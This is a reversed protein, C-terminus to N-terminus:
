VGENEIVYRVMHDDIIKKRQQYGYMLSKECIRNIIRLTGSSSRFIEDVAKETFLEHECGAYRLHSRIYEETDSRELRPLICNMDVRQRIATYCQLRLKDLLESQAVLILAMPSISDYNFNLLFRFEELTEKELLHAEDLVCVVQQKRVGRIIEIEKHLQRKADGRYFKSEIGLQDLLGKYFWRPTLKSDSLYLLTYKDRPLMQTFKRIITSKGCGSAATLLAFLQHDAVYSLRGLIEAIVPSEYLSETPIDRVFPTKNMDFHSEYM